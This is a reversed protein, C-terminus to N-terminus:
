RACNRPKTSCLFRRTRKASALDLTHAAIHGGGRQRPHLTSVADNAAAAAAAAAHEIRM